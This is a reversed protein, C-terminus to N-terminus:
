RQLKIDGWFFPLVVFGVKCPQCPVLLLWSCDSAAVPGPQREGTVLFLCPLRILGSDESLRSLCIDWTLSLGATCPVHLMSHGGFMVAQRGGQARAQGPRLPTPSGRPHLGQAQDELSGQCTNLTYTCSSQAWLVTGGAAEVARGGDQKDTGQSPFIGDVVQQCWIRGKRTRRKFRHGNSHHEQSTAPPAGSGGQGLSWMSLGQPSLNMILSSAQIYSPHGGQRGEGCGVCRM